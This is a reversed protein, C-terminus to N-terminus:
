KEFITFSPEGDPETLTRVETAAAARALADHRPPDYSTLVISSPPMEWAARANFSISRDALDNRGLKIAYFKWYWDIWLIDDALYVPRGGSPPERAIIEELAGRINREFWDASRTRYGTFYDTYFYAFQLPMLALLCAAAVRVLRQRNFLFYEVGATTILVAFPVMMMQRPVTREGAIAAALPAVLLGLPLVFSIGRRSANVATWRLGALLFLVMPLLFVGTRFTSNTPSDDAVVFLFVPNFASLYVGLRKGASAFGLLRRIGGFVNLSAADYLEYRRVLESYATPYRFIWVVFPVLPLVFGLGALLYLQRSARKMFLVLSTLLFFVPMMILAGIYSYFGLGLFFTSLCVFRPRGHRDFRLLCLLWAMLFPLPYLADVALRSSLFHAPTFALIAAAILAPREGTFLEKAVLYMLVTDVVGLFVSPLRVATESLPLVKLFLATFYVILPQAWYGKFIPFYLPLATGQLDRGTSAIAKAHLAFFVEDHALYIPSYHLYPAYVILVSGALLLVARLTTRRRNM